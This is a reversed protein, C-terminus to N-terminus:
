YGTPLEATGATVISQGQGNSFDENFKMEDYIMLMTGQAWETTNQNIGFYGNYITDYFERVLFNVATDSTELPLTNASMLGTNTNIQTPANVSSSASGADLTAATVDDNMKETLNTINGQNQGGPNAALSYQDDLCHPDAPDGSCTKTPIFGSNAAEARTSDEQRAIRGGAAQDLVTITGLPSDQPNYLMDMYAMYGGTRTSPDNFNAYFSGVDAENVFSGTNADTLACKTVSSTYKFPDEVKSRNNRVMNAASDVRWPQCLGLSGQPNGSAPDAAAQDSIAELQRGNVNYLNQNYNTVFVPASTLVGNNNVINGGKAFNLNAATLRNKLQKTLQANQADAIYQKLLAHIQVSVGLKQFEAIEILLCRLSESKNVQVYSGAPAPVHDPISSSAIARQWPQSTDAYPYAEFPGGGVGQIHHQPNDGNECPEAAIGGPAKGAILDRLNDTTGDPAGAGFTDDWRQFLDNVYNGFDSILDADQVPVYSQAFALRTDAGFLAMLVLLSFAWSEKKPTRMINSVTYKMPSTM